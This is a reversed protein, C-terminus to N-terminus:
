QTVPVELFPEPPYPRRKSPGPPEGISVVTGGPGGTRDAILVAPLGSVVVIQITLTRLGCHARVLAIVLPLQPYSMRLGTTWAALSVLAYREDVLEGDAGSVKHRSERDTHGSSLAPVRILGVANRTVAPPTRARRHRSTRPDSSRWAPGYPECVILNSVVNTLPSSSTTRTNMSPLSFIRPPDHLVVVAEILAYGTQSRGDARGCPQHGAGSALSLPEDVVHRARRDDVVGSRQV